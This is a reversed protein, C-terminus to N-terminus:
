KNLPMREPRSRELARTRAWPNISAQEARISRRKQSFHKVIRFGGTATLFICALITLAGVGLGIWYMGWVLNSMELLEQKLNALRLPFDNHMELNAHSQDILKPSAEFTCSEPVFRHGTLSLIEKTTGTANNSECTIKVETAVSGVSLIKFNQGRCQASVIKGSTEPFHFTPCASSRSLGVLLESACSIQQKDQVTSLAKIPCIIDNSFKECGPFLTELESTRSALQPHDISYLFKATIGRNNEDLLPQIKYVAGDAMNGIVSVKGFFFTANYRYSPEFWAKNIETGETGSGAALLLPMPQGLKIQYGKLSSCIARISSLWKTDRQPRFRIGVKYIALESLLLILDREGELEFAQFTSEPSVEGGLELPIGAFSVILEQVVGRLQGLEYYISEVLRLFSEMSEKQTVFEFKLGESGCLIKQASTGVTSWKQLRAARNNRDMNQIDLGLLTVDLKVAATGETLGLDQRVTYGLPDGAPSMVTVLASKTSRVKGLFPQYKIEKLGEAFLGDSKLALKFARRFEPGTRPLYGGHEFCKSVPNGNAEIDLVFGGETTRGKAHYLPSFMASSHGYPFTNDSSLPLEEVRSRIVPLAKAVSELIRELLRDADTLATQSAHFSVSAMVPDRIRLPGIFDLVAHPTCMGNESLTEQQFELLLLLFFLRVHMSGPM